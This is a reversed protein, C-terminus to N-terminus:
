ELVGNRLFYTRSHPIEGPPPQSALILMSSGSLAVKVLSEIVRQYSTSDLGASPEDVLILPQDAIAARAFQVLMTEVRTLHRPYKAALKLLSFESLMRFLREQQARKHEGNLVLPLTINEAVTLTPVLGFPGGVGGIQRRVQRVIRRRLPFLSQGFMLVQGQEPTRLGLMMEVLTTKGSGSAGAIVASCGSELKLNLGRFLFGGREVRQHINTLEVVPEKMIITGM